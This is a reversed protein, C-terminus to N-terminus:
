NRDALWRPQLPIGGFRVEQTTNESKKKQLIDDWNYFSNMTFVPDVIKINKM